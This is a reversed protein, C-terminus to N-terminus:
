GVAGSDVVETDVLLERAVVVCGLSGLAVPRLEVEVSSGAM